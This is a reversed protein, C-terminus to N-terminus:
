HFDTLAHPKIEKPIPVYAEGNMAEDFEAKAKVLLEPDAFLKLAALAISKGAFLMGKHAQSSKGQSVVQWSHGPTGPAWTATNIQATPCQYSVDGVDTSGGGQRVIHIPEYPVVFDYIRDERHAKLFATNEPILHDAVLKDYMAKGGDPTTKTYAAAKEYEEETYAPVGVENMADYLVGELVRNSVLDACSKILQSEVETETMMAAGKAIKDVREYLQKAQGLKPARILYIAKAEAQVVNPSYGGTDIVAYHIRAEQPMHERLFQVGVNMLELADLASRGLEPCAAAHASKGKFSYLVQFNALSSDKCVMNLTAPHWTLAADLDQFAGERAMFAKGSGGEEGPCGYYIVTGPHGAELYAKVALAAAASATGLLNHGCGHGNGGPHEACKEVVGAEQDLGSLADFEGLIGIRPKGSGFSATFATPVDYAHDQVSFGQQQFFTELAQVSKVETFATEHCAWITDALADLQKATDDIVKLYSHMEETKMSAERRDPLGCVRRSGCIDRGGCNEM